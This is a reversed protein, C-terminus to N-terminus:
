RGYKSLGLLITGVTAALLGITVKLWQTRWAVEHFLFMGIFVAPVTNLQALSWAIALNAHNMGAILCFLAITWAAGGLMALGVARPPQVRVDRIGNRKVLVAIGAVFVIGAAMWPSFEWLDIAAVVQKLPYLYSAYCVAAGLSFLVGARSSRKAGNASGTAGIVIAAFVIAVSGILCLLPDTTKRENLAILGVLTGLVGTTNKIPTAQALGIRAIGAAFSMTGLGWIAGCLLGLGRQTWDARLPCGVLVYPALATVLVGLSMWWLFTATDQKALKQPVMYLAFFLASLIGFVFGLIITFSM